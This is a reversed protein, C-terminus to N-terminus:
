VKFIKNVADTIRATIDGGNTAVPFDTIQDHYMLLPSTAAVGTSKYTVVANTVDGAAVAAFVPDDADFIGNAVSRGTLTVTALVHAGLDTVYEHAALDPTYDESMLAMVITDTLYNVEAKLQREAGKRYHGNAM